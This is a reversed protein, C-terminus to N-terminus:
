QQGDPPARMTEAAVHDLDDPKVPRPRRTHPRDPLASSDGFTEDGDREEGRRRERRTREVLRM